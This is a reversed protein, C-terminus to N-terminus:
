FDKDGFRKLVMKCWEKMEIITRDGKSTNCRHCLIMINNLIIDNENNKRDLTPSDHSLKTNNWNLKKNCIDCVEKDKIHNYLENTTIIVNYGSRKHNSLTHLCWKRKRNKTGWEDRKLYLKIKEKSSMTKYQTKNYERVKEKNNERWLKISKDSCEKCWSAYGSKRGTRKRFETISKEIKCKSCIKSDNMIIM